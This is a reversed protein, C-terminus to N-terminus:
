LDKINQKQKLLYINTDFTKSERLEHIELTNSARRKIPCSHILLDSYHTILIINAKVM